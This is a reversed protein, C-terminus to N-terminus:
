EYGGGGLKCYFLLPLGGGCTATVRGEDVLAGLYLRLATKYSASRNSYKM